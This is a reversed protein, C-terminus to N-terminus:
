LNFADPLYPALSNWEPGPAPPGNVLQPRVDFGPCGASAHTVREGGPNDTRHVRLTAAGDTDYAITAIVDTVGDNTEDLEDGLLRGAADRTLTFRRTAEIPTGTAAVDVTQAAKTGGYVFAFHATQGASTVDVGTPRGQGDWGYARSSQVIMGEDLSMTSSTALRGSADYGDQEDYDVTTGAGRDDRHRLVRGAADFDCVQREGAEDIEASTASWVITRTLTSTGLDQVQQVLRGGADYAFRWSSQVVGSRSWTATRPRHADDYRVEVREPENGGAPVTVDIVCRDAAPPAADPLAPVPTGGCAGLATMIAIWAKM